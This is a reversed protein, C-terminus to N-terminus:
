TRVITCRSSSSSGAPRDSLRARPWPGTGRSCDPHVDRLGLPRLEDVEVAGGQARPAPAIRGVREHQAQVAGVVVPAHEVAQRRPRRARSGRPPPRSGPGRRCRGGRCPSRTSAREVEVQRQQDAVERPVPRSRRGSRRRRGPWRPPRRRGPAPASSRSCRRGRAARPRAPAARRSGRRRGVTRRGCRGRAARRAAGTPTARPSPPAGRACCGAGAARTPRQWRARWPARSTSPPQTHFASGINPMPTGLSNLTAISSASIRWTRQGTSTSVPSWSSVQRSSVSSSSSARTPRARRAGRPPARCRGSRGRRPGRRSSASM